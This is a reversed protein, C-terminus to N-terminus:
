SKEGANHGRNPSVLCQIPNAPAVSDLFPDLSGFDSTLSILWFTTLAPTSGLLSAKHPAPQSPHPRCGALSQTRAEVRDAMLM